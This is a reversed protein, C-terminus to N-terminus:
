IYKQNFNIFANMVALLQIGCRKMSCQWQYWTGHCVVITVRRVNDFEVTYSDVRGRGGEFSAGSRCVKKGMEHSYLLKNQIHHIKFGTSIKKQIVTCVSYINSVGPCIPSGTVVILM